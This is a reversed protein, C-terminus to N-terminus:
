RSEREVLNNLKNEEDLSLLRDLDVILIIGDELKALAEVYNMRPLVRESKVIKKELNEVIGTVRDVVLAVTRRLTNAIILQDNLDLERQPLCFIKRTDIVPVICGRVNIVGLITEPGEPLPTVEVARVVRSIESLHIAYHNEDLSFVIYQHLSSM